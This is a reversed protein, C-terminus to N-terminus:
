PAARALQLPDVAPAGPALLYVTVDGEPTLQVVGGALQAAFKAQLASLAPPM